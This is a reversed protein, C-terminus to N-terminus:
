NVALEAIQPFAAFQRVLSNKPVAEVKTETPNRSRRRNRYGSPKDTTAAALPEASSLKRGPSAALALPATTKTESLLVVPPGHQKEIKATYHHSINEAGHEDKNNHVTTV